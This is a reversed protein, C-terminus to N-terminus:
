FPIDDDSLPDIAFKQRWQESAHHKISYYINQLNLSQPISEDERGYLSMACKCRHCYTVPTYFGSDVEQTESHGWIMCILNNM